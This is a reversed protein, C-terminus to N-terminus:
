PGPFGGAGGFGGAMCPAEDSAHVVPELDSGAICFHPAAPGGDIDLDFDYLPDGASAISEVLLHFDSTTEGPCINTFLVEYTRQQNPRLVTTISGTDLTVTQTNSAPIDAALFRPLYGFPEPNSIPSTVIRKFTSTTKQLTFFSGHTVELVPAFFGRPISVNNPYWENLDIMWRIDQDNGSFRNFGSGTKYFCVNSPQGTIGIRM